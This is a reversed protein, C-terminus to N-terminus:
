IILSFLAPKYKIITGLFIKPGLKQKSLGLINRPESSGVRNQKRPNKDSVIVLFM